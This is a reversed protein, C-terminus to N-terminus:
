VMSNLDVFNIKSLYPVNIAGETRVLKYKPTGELKNKKSNSDYVIFVSLHDSIDNFLIGSSNNM